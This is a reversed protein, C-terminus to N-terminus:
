TAPRSVPCGGTSSSRRRWRPSTRPWSTTTCPSPRPGPGAKALEESVVANFRFDAVGGGGFEEPVNFGILGHKGAARYVERDVIGAKEWAQAHPAVERALFERVVERFQEHEPEYVTRRM